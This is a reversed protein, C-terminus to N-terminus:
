WGRVARGLQDWSLGQEESRALLHLRLPGLGAARLTGGGPDYPSTAAAAAVWELASGDLVLTAREAGTTNPNPGFRLRDPAEPERDLASDDAVLFAVAGPEVALATFAAEQALAREEGGQARTLCLAGALAPVGTGPRVEFRGDRAAVLACYEEDEARDGDVYWEGSESAAPSSPTVEQAGEPRQTLAGSALSLRAGETLVLAQLGLALLPQGAVRRFEGGSLVMVSGRGRVEAEEGRLVLGTQQELGLGLLGEPAGEERAAALLGALRGLRGRETFHTDVLAGPVLGLFDDKLGSGGDTDRLWATEADQLLDDSTLDQGGAFAWASLSMAGASTGGVGGGRAHLDLIGRELATGDWLDYYEGQDGGKLFVADFGALDEAEAEARSAVQLNEARDAGLWRLYGPLWASEEATSLVAVALQGDGDIDGGELLAGYLRASWASDDGEDGESGGGALVVVGPEREAPKGGSCALLLLIM